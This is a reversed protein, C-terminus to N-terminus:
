RDRSQHRRQDLDPQGREPQGCRQRLFVVTPSGSWGGANVTAGAINLEGGGIVFQQITATGSKLNVESNDNMIFQSLGTGGQGSLTGGDLNLTGGNFFSISGRRATDYYSLVSAGTNINLVGGPRMWIANAEGAGGIILSGGNMTWESWLDEGSGSVGDSVNVTSGSQTVTGTGFNVGDSWTITYGDPITGNNGDAPLGNDWNDGNTLVGDGGGGDNDWVTAGQATVSALLLVAAITASVNVLSPRTGM